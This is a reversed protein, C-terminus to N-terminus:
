FDILVYFTLLLKASKRTLYSAIVSIEKWENLERVYVLVCDILMLRMKVNVIRNIINRLIVLSSRIIINYM